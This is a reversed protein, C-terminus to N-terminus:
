GERRYNFVVTGQLWVAEEQVGDVMTVNVTVLHCTTPPRIYTNTQKNTPDRAFLDSHAFLAMLCHITTDEQQGTGRETWGQIQNQCPTCAALVILLIIIIIENLSSVVSM